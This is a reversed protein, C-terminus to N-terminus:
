KKSSNKKWTEELENFRDAFYYKLRDINHAMFCRMENCKSKKVREDIEIITKYLIISCSILVVMIALFAILDSM